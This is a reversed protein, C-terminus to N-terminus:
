KMNNIAYYDYKIFFIVFERILYKKLFNYFYFKYLFM